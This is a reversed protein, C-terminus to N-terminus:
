DVKVLKNQEKLLSSIDDIIYGFLSEIYLSRVLTGREDKKLLIEEIEETIFSRIQMDTLKLCNLNSISLSRGGDGWGGYLVTKGVIYLGEIVFSLRFTSCNNFADKLRFHVNCLPTNANSYKQYFRVLNRIDM